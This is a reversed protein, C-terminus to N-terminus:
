LRTTRQRSWISAFGFCGLIGVIIGLSWLSSIHVASGFLFKGGIFMLVFGLGYSLYKLKALLIEVVFFLSRLGLIAAMNATFIIAPNHTIAFAAPISDLAFIVDSVEIMVLAFLMFTCLWAGNRHVFFNGHHEGATFPVYRHLWRNVPHNAIKEPHNDNQGGRIIKWGTYILAAAFIYMVWSLAGILATGALIFALRFVIAGIIGYFLVKHQYKREITFFQFIVLMVFLNDLSLMKETIYVTTFDLSEQTYGFGWLTGAFLIAIGIAIFTQVLVSRITPEHTHRNFVALDLVLYGTFLLGFIIYLLDITM